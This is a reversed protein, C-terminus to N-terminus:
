WAHLLAYLPLFPTWLPLNRTVLFNLVYPHTRTLIHTNYVPCMYVCVEGTLQVCSWWTPALKTKLVQCWVPHRRPPCYPGASVRGCVRDHWSPAAFQAGKSKVSFGWGLQHLLVYASRTRLGRRPPSSPFILSLFFPFPHVPPTRQQFSFCWVGVMTCGQPGGVGGRTGGRPGGGGGRGWQQVCPVPHEAWSAEQTDARFSDVCVCVLHDSFVGLQRCTELPSM